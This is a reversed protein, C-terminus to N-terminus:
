TEATLEATFRAGGLAGRRVLDVFAAYFGVYGAHTDVGSAALADRRLGEYMRLREELIPVWAQSLDEVAVNRFGAARLLADYAPVDILAQAAIGRWLLDREAANLDPTAIWDSFALKGGPRLVRRCEALLRAKDPVHLFAEQSIVADFCANAFPLAQADARVVQVAHGLGVRRSLDAAGAARGHNLELAVMRCGRSRALYRAPGGLGACVDLVRSEATIGARDALAATAALGGYHDQDFPFLDEPVLGDLHGRAAAVKALVQTATIPHRDYFDRVHGAAVNM